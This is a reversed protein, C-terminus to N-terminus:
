ELFEKTSRNNESMYNTMSPGDPNHANLTFSGGNITIDRVNSFFSVNPRHSQHFLPNADTTETAM